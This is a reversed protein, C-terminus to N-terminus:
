AAAALGPGEVQPDVFRASWEDGIEVIVVEVVRPMELREDGRQQVPRAVREGIGIGDEAVAEGRVVAVAHRRGVGEFRPLVVPM